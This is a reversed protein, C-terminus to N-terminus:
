QTCSLAVTKGSVLRLSPLHDGDKILVFGGIEVKEGVHRHLLDPDGIVVFVDRSSKDAITSAEGEVSSVAGTILFIPSAESAERAATLVIVPLNHDSSAVRAQELCGTVVVPHDNPGPTQPQSTQAGLGVTMLVAVATAWATNRMNINM